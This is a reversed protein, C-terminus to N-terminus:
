DYLNIVQLALDFYEVSSAAHQVCFCKNQQKEFVRWFTRRPFDVLFHLKQVVEGVGFKFSLYGWFLASFLWKQPWLSATLKM